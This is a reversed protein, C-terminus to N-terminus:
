EFRIRAVGAGMFVVTIGLLVTIPWVLADFSGGRLMVERFGEMAWAQPTLYGIRRMTDGVMELPWYVGGLMCTANVLITGVTRQQDATRVLGAVFLGLGASCLVYSAVMALLPLTPGWNTKFALTTVGILVGFQFMGTVFFSLLYGLLVKMRGTPSTLLRGWTGNQREQLITGAMTFTMMMVFMIAFGMGRENLNTMKPAGHDTRTLKEQEVTSAISERETLVKDYAAKLKAEDATSGAMKAAIRYDGAVRSAQRTLVPGVGTQLNGGPAPTLRVESEKGDAVAKEFGAPIVIASDIKKDAFLRNIEDAKVLRVKLLKDGQLAEVLRQSAFTSDEDVVAVPFAPAGGTNGPDPGMFVGFILTLLLPFGFMGMIAGKSKFVLRFQLLTISLIQRM